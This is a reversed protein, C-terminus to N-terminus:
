KIIQSLIATGKEDIQDLMEQGMKDKLMNRGTLLEPVRHHVGHCDSGLLPVIGKKMSKIMLKTYKRNHFSDSNYQIIADTQFLEKIYKRNGRFAAFRELHALMIQYDGSEIMEMVEDFEERTWSKFPMELLLIDTGEMMLESIKDARSIDEFYTVEAGLLIKPIRVPEDDQAQAKQKLEDIAEVLKDYAKQRRELYVEVSVESAYFHPTVVVVDIGQRSEEQLMILSSEINRSGDDIGPLIHTHFDIIAMAGGLVYVKSLGLTYAM